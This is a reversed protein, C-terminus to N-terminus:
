FNWLPALVQKAVYINYGGVDVQSQISVTAGPFVGTYNIAASQIAEPPLPQQNMLATGASMQAGQGTAVALATAGSATAYSGPTGSLPAPASATVYTTTSTNYFTFQGTANAVAAAAAIPGTVQGATIGDMQGASLTLPGGAGAQALGVPAACLMMVSTITRFRTM